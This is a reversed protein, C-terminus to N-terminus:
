KAPVPFCAQALARCAAAAAAKSEFPGVQLRTVAGAPVYFPRRGALASNGSLKRYLAEASGRQSFAGLQIRWAGSAAITPSPAQAVPKPAAAPAKKAVAKKPTAQPKEASLALGLAKQRQAAPLIQDLEARTTKAANLGQDAAKSVYAYGLLPDRGVGDGNFLATGYILMARPDSREAAIKLWRL